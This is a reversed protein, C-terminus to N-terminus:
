RLPASSSFRRMPLGFVIGGLPISGWPLRQQM